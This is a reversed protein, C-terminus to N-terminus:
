VIYWVQVGGANGVVCVGASRWVGVVGKVVCVSYWVSCM